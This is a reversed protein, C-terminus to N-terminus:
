HFLMCLLANSAPDLVGNSAILVTIIYKEDIDPFAEKLTKISKVLAPFPPKPESDESEAVDQKGPAEPPPTQPNEQIVQPDQFSVKKSDETM